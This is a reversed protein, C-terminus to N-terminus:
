NFYTLFSVTSFLKSPSNLAMNTGLMSGVNRVNANQATHDDNLGESTTLVNM